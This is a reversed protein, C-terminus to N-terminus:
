PRGGPPAPPDYAQAGRAAVAAMARQLTAEDLPPLTPKSPPPTPGPLEAPLSRPDISTELRPLPFPRPPAAGPVPVLAHFYLGLGALALALFALLGAAILMAPRARVDTPELTDALKAASDAPL